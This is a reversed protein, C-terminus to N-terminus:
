VPHPYRYCRLGTEERAGRIRGDARVCRPLSRPSHGKAFSTLYHNERSIKDTLQCIVMAGERLTLTRQTCREKPLQLKEEKHLWKRKERASSRIRDVRWNFNALQLKSEKQISLAKGATALRALMDRLQNDLERRRDEAGHQHHAGALSPASACM